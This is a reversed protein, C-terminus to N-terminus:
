YSKIVVTLPSVTKNRRTKVFSCDSVAVLFYIYVKNFLKQLSTGNKDENFNM